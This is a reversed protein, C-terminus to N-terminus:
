RETARLSAPTARALLGIGGDFTVGPYWFDTTVPVFGLKEHLARSAHNRINTFFWAEPAREFIWDLRRRTLAAGIGRRRRASIVQLGVLYFGPPSVNAPAQAPVAFHMLRGYGTLRGDDTSVFLRRTPETFDKRFQRERPERPLGALDCIHLLAALDASTASRIGHPDDPASATSMHSATARADTGYLNQLDLAPLQM